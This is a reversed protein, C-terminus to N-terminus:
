ITSGGLFSSLDGTDFVYTNRGVDRGYTADPSKNLWVHPAIHVDAGGTDMALFPVVASGTSEDAVNLASMQANVHSTQMLSVTITGARNNTVARAAEGTAGITKTVSQEDHAVVLVDGDAFGEMSYPGIIIKMNKLNWTKLAM